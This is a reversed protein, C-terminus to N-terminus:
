RRLYDLTCWLKTLIPSWVSRFTERDQITYATQLVSKQARGSAEANQRASLGCVEGFSKEIEMVRVEPGLQVACARQSDQAVPVLYPISVIM